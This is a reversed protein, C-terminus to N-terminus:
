LMMKKFEDVWLDDDNLAPLLDFKGGSNELFLKKYEVGLEVNTELCDTIFSPAVVLIKKIGSKALRIITEDTFPTLWNKTLRSQFSVSYKEQVLGLEKAILRTTEYCTAKYCKEGHKPFENECNCNHLPIHPHINQVQNNPLGHYTFLIYDYNGPNMARIKQVYSNIFGPHNYFQEIYQINPKNKWNKSYNEVYSIVSQTTSTAYQPTLLFLL